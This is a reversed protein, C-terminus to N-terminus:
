RFNKSAFWEMLAVMSEPDDDLAKTLQKVDMDKFIRKQLFGVSLSEQLAEQKLSIERKAQTNKFNADSIENTLEFYRTNAEKIEELTGSEKLTLLQKALFEQEAVKNQFEVDFNLKNSQNQLESYQVDANVALFLKRYIMYDVDTAPLLELERGLITVKNASVSSEHVQENEAM